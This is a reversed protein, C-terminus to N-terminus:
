RKQEYVEIYQHAVHQEGYAQAAHHAAAQRWQPHDLVTQIGRALDASDRYQAVYGDQQHAIMEPIGGVCFGVCPTGCSMAEAITNPLNDQLSPTVFCDVAAYLQAMAREGDVYNIPYCPGPWQIQQRMQEANKGVVVLGYDPKERQAMECIYRMGKREDDVKQACFLVLRGELPLGMARRAETQDQPHFIAHPIANNIHHVRVGPLAQRAEDTIWQSCGVMQLNGQAYITRKQQWIRHAVGGSILPCRRCEQEKCEGRFHCVGLYPWEDHLTWVVRKGSQLIRQLTRLSLMGQNVWHLHIVDAEMYEPTRTIDFGTNGLDCLWSRRYHMGNRLLISVREMAKPVINGITAVTIRDTQKDRVLMKAKVGNNNLAEMLRSAAIAGGGTRETTSVILVRM